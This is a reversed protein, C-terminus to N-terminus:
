ALGLRQWLTRKTKVPQGLQPAACAKEFEITVKRAHEYNNGFREKLTRFHRNADTASEFSSSPPWVNDFARPLGGRKIEELIAPLNAKYQEFRRDTENLLFGLVTPCGRGNAERAYDIVRFTPPLGGLSIATPRIPILVTDCMVLGNMAIISAKNVNGPLDVLVFEFDKTVPRLYEALHHLNGRPSLKEELDFIKDGDPVLVHLEALASGRADSAARPILYDSLVKPPTRGQRLRQFLDAITRNQNIAARVATRGLLACSSSAQADLDIVLLSRGRNGALFEALGVTVTSKGEGGKNNYIAVIPM